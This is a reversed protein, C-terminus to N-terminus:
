DIVINPVLHIHDNCKNCIFDHSNKTDKVLSQYTGKKCKTCIVSEGTILKEILTKDEKEM